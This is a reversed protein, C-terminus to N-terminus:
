IKKVPVSLDGDEEEEEGGRLDDHINNNGVHRKHVVAQADHREDVGRRRERMCVGIFGDM